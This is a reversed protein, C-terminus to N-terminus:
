EKEVREWLELVGNPPHEYEKLKRKLHNWLHEIPAIGVSQAPWPLLKIGNDQFWKQAMKNTHKPDNDQQLIIDGPSKNHYELSAQLEDELIQVYLDADMKGDIKCAYGAGEWMMCGWMMVSGGGFKLTCEVLRDNLPEGAMKWVITRSDSGIHNIKTEDSYVVM